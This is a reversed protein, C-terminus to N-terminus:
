PGNDFQSALTLRPTLTPFRRRGVFKYALRITRGVVISAASDLVYYGFVINGIAGNKTWTQANYTAVLRFTPGDFSVVVGTMNGGGYGSFNCETFDEKVTSPGIVPDNQYLRITTPLLANVGVLRNLQNTKASNPVILYSM